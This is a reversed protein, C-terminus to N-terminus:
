SFSATDRFCTIIFQVLIDTKSISLQARIRSFRQFDSAESVFFIFFFKIIM